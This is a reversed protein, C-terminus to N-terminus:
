NSLLIFFFIGIGRTRDEVALTRNFRWLVPEGGEHPYVPQSCSSCWVRNWDQFRSIHPRLSNKKRWVQRSWFSNDRPLRNIGYLLLQANTHTYVSRAHSRACPVLVSARARRERSNARAHTRTNTHNHIPTYTYTHTHIYIQSVRVCGTCISPIKAVCGSM